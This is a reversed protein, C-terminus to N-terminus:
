KPYVMRSRRATELVRLAKGVIREIEEGHKPFRKGVERWQEVTERFSHVFAAKEASGVKTNAVLRNELFDTAWSIIDELDPLFDVERICVTAQYSETFSLSCYITNPRLYFAFDADDETLFLMEPEELTRILKATLEIDPVGNTLTPELRQLNELTAPWMIWLQTGRWHIIYTGCAIGDTRPHMISGPFMWSSTPHLILSTDPTFPHFRWRCQLLGKSTFPIDMPCLVRSGM